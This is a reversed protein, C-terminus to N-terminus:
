LPNITTFKKKNISKNYGYKDNWIYDYSGDCVVFCDDTIINLQISMCFFSSPTLIIKSANKIIKTYDSLKHNIFLNAINYNETETNPDYFNICPNIILTKNKDINFKNELFALDFVTGQSFSNHVFIYDKNDLKSYLLTLLDESKQTEHIYSYEWFVSYPINMDDYFNFPLDVIPHHNNIHFGCRYNDCINFYSSLENINCDEEIQLVKINPKTLYFIKMNEANRNKCVVYVIDYKTSLYMVVPLATLNDGLGIHTLVFAKNCIINHLKNFIIETTFNHKCHIMGNYRINNIHERNRPDLVYDVQENLDRTFDLLMCNVNNILGFKKITEEEALPMILLSGSALIEFTKLLVMNTSMKQQKMVNFLYVSSTFCCLYNNLVMSYNNTNFDNTNYQYHVINNVSLMMHREPYCMENTQGSILIKEIPNNNFDVFSESYASWKNISIINHAYPTYDEGNFECLQNVDNAFTLVKYNTAKYVESIFYHQMERGPDPIKWWDITSIFIKSKIEISKIYHLVNIHYYDIVNDFFLIIKNEPKNNNTIFEITESENLDLHNYKIKLYKNLLEHSKNNLFETDKKTVVYFNNM